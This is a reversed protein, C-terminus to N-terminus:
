GRRRDEPQWCGWSSAACDPGGAPSTSELGGSRWRWCCTVARSAANARGRGLEDFAGAHALAEAVPAVAGARRRVDRWAVRVAARAGASDIMADDIGAVDQLALRIGFRWAPDGPDVGNDFGSPPLPQGEADLSWGRPPDEGSVGLLAFAEAAPLREM